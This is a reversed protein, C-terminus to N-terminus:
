YRIRLYVGNMRRGWRNKWKAFAGGNALKEAEYKSDIKDIRRRKCGVNFEDSFDYWCQKLYMDSNKWEEVGRNRRYQGM